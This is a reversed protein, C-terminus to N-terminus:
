RGFCILEAGSLARIENGEAIELRGDPLVRRLVARYTRGGEDLLVEEGVFALRALYDSFESKEQFFRILAARVDDTDLRRGAAESLGIAPLDGLPNNVNLGIGVVSWAVRGAVIGNEILIGCLKKGNALVDNPWKIRASVGFAEATRCVSLAAHAMIRFSEGGGLDPFTLFSLYVGGEKSSFSRGKTGRGRTQRRACVCVAEGDGLYRKIYDNTSDVEEIM